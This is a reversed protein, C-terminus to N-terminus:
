LSKAQSEHVEFGFKNFENLGYINGSIRNKSGLIFFLFTFIFFEFNEFNNKNLAPLGVM